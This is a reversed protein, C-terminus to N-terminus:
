VAQVARGLHTSSHVSAVTSFHFDTLLRAIKKEMRGLGTYTRLRSVLGNALRPQKADMEWPHFYICAPRQECRNIRRIGAATYRYPLLRLYAGGGVPVVAGRSLEATAIPIELIPGAPTELTHAQRQSGPIGYRDHVIPFISSDCQFGCEVLIRLAWLSQKTVSYSPARYVRPTTGVANQIAAVARLTDQRFEEPTLEYVLRHAYSHCGIEHGAACIRRLLRPHRDAVWGVVFFTALTSHRALLELVRDTQEEVRSPLSPWDEMKLSRQVESPHFYEEVDITLANIM